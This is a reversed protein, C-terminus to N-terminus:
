SKKLFSYVFVDFFIEKKTSLATNRLFIKTHTQKENKKLPSPRVTGSAHALTPLRLFYFRCCILFIQSGGNM